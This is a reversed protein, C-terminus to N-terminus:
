LMAINIIKVILVAAAIVFKRWQFLLAIIIIIIISTQQQNVVAAAITIKRLLVTSVSGTTQYESVVVRNEEDCRANPVLGILSGSCDSSGTWRTRTLENFAIRPIILCM